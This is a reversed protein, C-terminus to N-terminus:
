YIGKVNQSEEKDLEGVVKAGQTNACEASKQQFFLLTYM